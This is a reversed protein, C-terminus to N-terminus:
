ASLRVDDVPEVALSDEFDLFVDMLEDPSILTRRGAPFRYRWFSAVHQLAGLREGLGMFMSPAELLFERFSLPKGEQTLAVYAKDYTALMASVQAGAEVINAVIRGRVESLYATTDPEAPGRARVAMIEKMVAKVQNNQDNLLWKYYLFGRWSFIGDLYERDSLKLTEKLPEFGAEPSSSLLKEVLRQTQMAGAGGQSLSVLDNIERRVFEFMRAMDADSIAFYARAPQFGFRKLHERLLFPDLSPLEDLLDLVQRDHQGPKLADGFLEQASEDFGREGVMLVRAGLKLDAGEIPSLIKTATGRPRELLAVEHPRVRHKLLISNNLFRNKFFPAQAIAPDTAANRQVAVLNLVRSTSASKELATLRRITRDNL